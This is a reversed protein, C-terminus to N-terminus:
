TRDTLCVRRWGTHTAIPRAWGSINRRSNPGSRWFMLAGPKASPPAHFMNTGPRSTWIAKNAPANAPKPNTPWIRVPTMSRKRTVGTLRVASSNPKASRSM